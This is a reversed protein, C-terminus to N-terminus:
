VACVDRQHRSEGVQVLQQASHLAGVQHYQRGPRRHALTGQGQVHGHVVGLGAAGAGYEAQLHGGVLQGHLARALSVPMSEWRIRGPSYLWDWSSRMMLAMPSSESSGIYM